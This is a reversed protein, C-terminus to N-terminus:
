AVLLRHFQAAAADWSYDDMAAGAARGIEGLAERHGYAWELRELIEEVSPEDWEAVKRDGVRVDTRALADLLLATTPSAVDRHGTSNSVIAPKGCAMYEMLALNTGGECRNPFLGCDSNRYVRAMAHNPKPPLTLVRSLDIGNRALLEQVNACHDEAWPVFEIHPSAAMTGWSHAWHNFWANVLMVDEHRQQFVRFAAIVLDQGKRYEFKGGSFVVFADEHFRKVNGCANFVSRDVGQVIAEAGPLGHARLVDRCWTSGGVVVDFSRANELNEPALISHEFFTYLINRRGRVGPAMPLLRHDTAAQLVPSAKVEEEILELQAPDVVLPQLAEYDFEDQVVTADFQPAVLRLPELRALALSLQTGCIGWGHTSGLPLALTLM